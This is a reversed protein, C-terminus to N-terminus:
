EYFPFRYTKGIHLAALNGNPNLAEFDSIIEDIPVPSTGGHIKEVVSLVTDGPKVVRNQYQIDLDDGSKGAAATHVAPVTNAPLTGTTLDFYIIYFVLCACGALLFRKM